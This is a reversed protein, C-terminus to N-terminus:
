RNLVQMQHQRWWDGSGASAASGTMPSGAAVARGVNCSLTAGFSAAKGAAAAPAIALGLTQALAVPLGTATAQGVGTNLTLTGGVIMKLGAAVAAGVNCLLTPHGTLTVALGAGVAPGVAAPLARSLSATAGAALAAGIGASLTVARPFSATAGAALAAGVGYPAVRTFSAPSGAALAAGVSASLTAARPFSAPMGAALAAGIAFVQAQKLAVAAGAALAAGAGIPVARAFGAASGAALAAGVGCSLTQSALLTAPAGAGVAAGVFCSLTEAALLTVPLGAALAAGVGPGLTRALSVPLGAALAAGVNASLTVGSPSDILEISFSRLGVSGGLSVNTDPWTAQNNADAHFYGVGNRGSAGRVNMGSANDPFAAYSNGTASFGVITNASAASLTGIAPLTLTSTGDQGSHSHGGIGSFGRYSAIQVITAGTWTGATESGSAAVKYATLSAPGHSGDYDEDLLTWGSAVSPPSYGDTAAHALLIDGAAHAPMLGPSEDGVIVDVFGSATPTTLVDDFVAFGAAHRGAASLAVYCDGPDTAQSMYGSAFVITTDAGTTTASDVLAFAIQPNDNANGIFTSSGNNGGGLAFCALANNTTGYGGTTTTDTSSSPAQTEDHYALSVTGEPRYAIMAGRAINGGTRPFAVSASSSGRIRWAWYLAGLGSTTTLTNGVATQGILSWGTPTSFAATGRYAIAAIILDGAACGGPESLSLNGGNAQAVSGVGVFAFM